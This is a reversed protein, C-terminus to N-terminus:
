KKASQAELKASSRKLQYIIGSKELALCAHHTLQILYQMEVQNFPRDSPSGSLLIIGATRNKLWLPVSLIGPTKLLEARELESLHKGLAVPVEGPILVPKGRGAIERILGQPFGGALQQVLENSIGQSVKLSLRGSKDVLALYGRQAGHEKMAGFLLRKFLEEIETTSAFAEISETLTELMKLSHELTKNKTELEKLLRDNQRRLRVQNFAKGLTSALIEESDIPRVIFDYAGHRLAQLLNFSAANHSILIVEVEPCKKKAEKLLYLGSKSPLETETLILSVEEQNLISLAKVSSDAELVDVNIMELLDKLDKRRDAM